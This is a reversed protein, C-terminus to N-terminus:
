KDTRLEYSVLIPQRMVKKQFFTAYDLFFTNSQLIM